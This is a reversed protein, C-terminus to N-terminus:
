CAYGTYRVLIVKADCVGISAQIGCVRNFRLRESQAFVIYNHGNWVYGFWCIKFDSLDCIQLPAMCCQDFPQSCSFIILFTMRRPEFNRLCIALQSSVSKCSGILLCICQHTMIGRYTWTAFWLCFQFSLKHKMAMKTEDLRKAIIHNPQKRKIYAMGNLALFRAKHSCSKASIVCNLSWRWNWATTPPVPGSKECLSLPAPRHHALLPQGQLKPREPSM